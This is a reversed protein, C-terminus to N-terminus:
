EALAICAIGTAIMLAAGIRFLPAPEDFLFVGLVVGIVISFQRLALVYSAQPSLQYSWLVLWYAGFIGAGAIAPWKWSSWGQYSGVSQRTVKFILWYAAVTFATSYVMYRAATGPGPELAEAALKDVLTYGVTGLAAMVVWSTARNWYRALHFGGPGNLPIAVCGLSVLGMGLWALPSPQVGRLMDVGALILIPLARALPYVFSFDGTQYGRSLGLNYFAEFIGTIVLYGWM